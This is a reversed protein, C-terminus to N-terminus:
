WRRTISPGARVFRAGEEADEILRVLAPVAPKGIKQLAIMEASWPERIWNYKIRCKMVEILIPVADVSQLDGLIDIADQELRSTIEVESLDVSSSLASDQFHQWLVRREEERGTAFRPRSRDKVIDSLLSMLGPIASRNLRVLDLRAQEREAGNASWLEKILMAARSEDDPTRQSQPFTQLFELMIALAVGIIRITLVM